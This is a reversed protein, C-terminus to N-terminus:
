AIFGGGSNLGKLKDAADQQAKSNKAIEKTLGDLLENNKGLLKGGEQEPRSAASEQIRRGMEELGVFSAQFETKKRKAQEDAQKDLVKNVAQQTAIAAQLETNKGKVAAQYDAELAEDREIRRLEEDRGEAAMIQRRTGKLVGGLTVEAAVRAQAEKEAAQKRAALMKAGREMASREASEDDRRMIDYAEKAKRIEYDRAQQTHEGLLKDEDRQKKRAAEAIEAEKDAAAQADNQAESASEKDFRALRRNHEKQLEEREGFHTRQMHIWEEYIQRQEASAGGFRVAIIARELNAVGYGEELKTRAEKQREAAAKMADSQAEVLEERQATRSPKDLRRRAAQQKALNAMFEEHARAENEIQKFAAKAAAASEAWADRFKGVIWLIGGIAAAVLAIHPLFAAAKAGAAAFAGGIGSTAAAQAGATAAAREQNRALMGTLSVIGSLPGGLGSASLAPGLM